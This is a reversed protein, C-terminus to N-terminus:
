AVSRLGLPRWVQARKKISGRHVAEAARKRKLREAFGRRLRNRLASAPANDIDVGAALLSIV